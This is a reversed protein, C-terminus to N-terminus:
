RRAGVPVQALAGAHRWITSAIWALYLAGAALLLSYAAPWARLLLGVGLAGMVIHALSGAVLGAVAALGSRRGGALTSSLVFAMDVGPMAIVGFVLLTYLWLTEMGATHPGMGSM